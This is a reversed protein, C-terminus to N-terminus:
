KTEKKYRIIDEININEDGTLEILTNIISDLTEFNIAKSQNNILEYVTNSRIKAETALRNASIQKGEKDRISELTIKLASKIM